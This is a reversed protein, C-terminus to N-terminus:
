ALLVSRLRKINRVTQLNMPLREYKNCAKKQLSQFQCAKKNGNRAHTSQAFKDSKVSASVSGLRAGGHSGATQTKGSQKQESSPVVTGPSKGGFFTGMIIVIVKSSAMFLLLMLKYLSMKLPFRFFGFPHLM